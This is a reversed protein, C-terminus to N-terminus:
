RILIGVDDYVDGSFTTLEYVLIAFAVKVKLSGSVPFM